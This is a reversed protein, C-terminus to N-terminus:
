GVAQGSWSIKEKVQAMQLRQLTLRELEQGAEGVFEAVRHAETDSWASDHEEAMRLGDLFHEDLAVPGERLTASQLAGLPHESLPEQRALARMMEPLPAQRLGGEM